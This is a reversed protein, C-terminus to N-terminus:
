KREFPNELLALNHACMKADHIIDKKFLEAASNNELQAKRLDCLKRIEVIMREKESLCSQEFKRTYIERWQVLIVRNVNKDFYQELSAKLTANNENTATEMEVTMRQKVQPLSGVDCTLIENALSNHLKNGNDRLNGLLHSYTVDLDSFAKVEESNKFSFVFNESLIANWLNEIKDAFRILTVYNFKVSVNEFLKERVVNIKEIYGTNIPAMPPQGSWLDPLYIFPNVMMM